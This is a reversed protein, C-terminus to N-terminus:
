PQRALTGTSQALEGNVKEDKLKIRWTAPVNSSSSALQRDARQACM